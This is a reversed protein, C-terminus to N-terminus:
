NTVCRRVGFLLALVVVACFQVVCEWAGCQAAVCSGCYCVASCNTVCWWLGRGCKKVDGFLVIVASFLAGCRFSVVM